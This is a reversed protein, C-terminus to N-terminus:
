VAGKMYESIKIKLIEIEDALREDWQLQATKKRVANMITTHDKGNFKRGIEPLSRGTMIKCLYMAVHRPHVLGATRRSSLLELMTVNYFRCVIRQIDRCEPATGYVMRPRVIQPMFYTVNLNTVPTMGFPANSKVVPALEPVSQIIPVIRRLRERAEKNLRMAERINTVGSPLADVTMAM